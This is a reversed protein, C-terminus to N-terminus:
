EPRYRREACHPQCALRAPELATEVGSFGGYVAVGDLLTFTDTRSAGPYHVGAAVWITDGSAAKGLAGQLSCATGWALCDAADPVGPKVYLVSAARVSSATFPALAFALVWGLIFLISILTRPRSRRIM